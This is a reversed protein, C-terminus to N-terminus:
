LSINQEKKWIEIMKPIDDVPRSGGKLVMHHSHRNNWELFLNSQLTINYNEGFAWEAFEEARDGIQEVVIDRMSLRNCRKRLIITLIMAFILWHM